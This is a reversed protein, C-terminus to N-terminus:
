GNFTGTKLIEFMARRLQVNDTCIVFDCAKDGNLKKFEELLGIANGHLYAKNPYTPICHSFIMAEWSKMGSQRVIYWADRVKILYTAGSRLKVM